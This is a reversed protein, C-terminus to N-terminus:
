GLCKCGREKRAQTILDLHSGVNRKRYIRKVHTKITNLSLDMLDATDPLTRGGILHEYVELERPTLYPNKSMVLTDPRNEKTQKNM